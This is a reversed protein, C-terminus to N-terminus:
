FKLMKKAEIKDKDAIAKDKQLIFTLFNETKQIAGQLKRNSGQKLQEYDKLAKLIRRKERKNRWL